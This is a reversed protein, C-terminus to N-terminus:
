QGNLGITLQWSFVGHPTGGGVCFESNGHISTDEASRSPRLEQVIHINPMPVKMPTTQYFLTHKEPDVVVPVNVISFGADDMRGNGYFSLSKGHNHVHPIVEVSDEVAFEMLPDTGTRELIKASAALLRQKRDNNIEKIAELAQESSPRHSEERHLMKLALKSEEPFNVTMSEPLTSNCRADDIVKARAMMTDFINCLEVLIVGFSYIDAKPSLHKGELQEPAAYTPTGVGAEFSLDELGTASDQIDTKLKGSDFAVMKSNMRSVRRSISNGIALGFDGILVRLPKSKDDMFINAPKLDRHILGERHVYALGYLLQKMISTNEERNIEERHVLYGQLTDTEYCAMQIYLNMQHKLCKSSTTGSSEDSVLRKQSSLLPSSFEEDSLTSEAISDLTTRNVTVRPKELFDDEASAPYDDEFEDEESDSSNERIQLGKDEVWCSHYRVINPHDLKGIMTAERLSKTRLSDKNNNNDQSANFFFPCEKVAYMLNDVLNLCKFVTGFGGKGLVKKLEYERKFKGDTNVDTPALTPQPRINYAASVSRRFHGPRPPSHSKFSREGSAVSGDRQLSAVAAASTLKMSGKTRQM